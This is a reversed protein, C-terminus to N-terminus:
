KIYLVDTFYKKKDYFYKIKDPNNQQLLDSIDQKNYKFSYEVHIAEYESFEIITNVKRFFVKQKKKSILYSEMAGLHANYIGNHDFNNLNFNANFLNNIRTLLNLNFKKTLDSSDNYARTLVKIDKKLDFGILISDSKNLNIKIEKIFSKSKSKNFNGINSGLFLILKKNKSKNKLYNLGEIFEAHIGTIKLNSNINLNKRIDSLAQISIDIPYYNVKYNNELFGDILIKSKSGDGPGLEIVDIINENLLKPLENKLIGLIEIEKNTLYYDQHNTITDFIKSGKEDYFFKSSVNKAKSKLGILIEDKIKNEFNDNNKYLNIIKM